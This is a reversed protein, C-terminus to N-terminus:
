GRLKAYVDGFIPSGKTRELLDIMKEADVWKELALIMSEGESYNFIYNSNLSNLRAVCGAAIEIVEPTFEFAVHEVSSYLGKLVELEFGEVDIKIFKPEGYFLIMKDLYTVPVVIEKNWNYKKFRREKVKNIWNQNMSAITSARTLQLKATGVTSGLATQVVAVKASFRKKLKQVCAPQPEFAVVRAGVQLLAATRDGINAGVDFCLDGPNIFNSYFKAIKAISAGAM